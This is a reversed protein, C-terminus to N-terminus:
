RGPGQRWQKWHRRLEKCFATPKQRYFETAMTIAESRLERQRLTIIRHLEKICKTSRFAVQEGMRTETLLFLDHDEGLCQGLRELTEKARAIAEPQIKKLLGIQYYLDKVRKRCDHFREGTPNKKVTSFARQGALYSKKYGSALAPWGSTKLRVAPIERCAEKLLRSVHFFTKNACLGREQERCQQSFAEQLPAFERAPLERKFRNILAVIANLKVHADRAVGLPGAANRLPEMCRHYNAKSMSGRFLRLFARIRKISKRVEHLAELQDPKRLQKLAKNIQSRGLRRFAKQVQENRKITFGM